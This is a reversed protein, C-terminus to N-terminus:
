RTHFIYIQSAVSNTGNFGADRWALGDTGWAMLPGLLSGGGFPVIGSFIPEGTSLRLITLVCLISAGSLSQLGNDIFAIRDQAPIVEVNGKAPYGRVFSGKLPDVVAGSTCYLLGRAYKCGDGLAINTTRNIKLGDAVVDILYLNYPDIGILQGSATWGPFGVPGDSPLQRVQPVGNVFLIAGRNGPSVSPDRVSVVLQDPHGPVTTMAYTEPPASGLETSPIAFNQDFTFTKTSLRFIRGPTAVYVFNGDDSLCLRQADVTM